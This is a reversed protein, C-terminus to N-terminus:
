AAEQEPGTGKVVEHMIGLQESLMKTFFVQTNNINASLEKVQKNVPTGNSLQSVKNLEAVLDAFKSIAESAKRELRPLSDVLDSAYSKQIQNSTVM